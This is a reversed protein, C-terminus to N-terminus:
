PGTRQHQQGDISGARKNENVQGHDDQSPVSLLWKGKPKSWIASNCGFATITTNPQGHANNGL